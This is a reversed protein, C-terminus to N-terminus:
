LLRSAEDLREQVDIAQAPGLLPAPAARALRRLLSRARELEGLRALTLVLNAPAALERLDGNEARECWHKAADDQGLRAAIGALEAALNAKDPLKRPQEKLHDFFWQAPQTRDTVTPEPKPAGAHLQELRQYIARLKELEG